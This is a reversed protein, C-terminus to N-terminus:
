SDLNYSAIIRDIASRNTEIGISSKALFLIQLIGDTSNVFYSLSYSGELSDVNTSDVERLIGAENGISVDEQQIVSGVAVPNEEIYQAVTGSYETALLNMVFGSQDNQLGLVSDTNENSAVFLLNQNGSNTIETTYLDGPIRLSFGRDSILYENDLRKLSVRPSTAANISGNREAIDDTLAIDTNSGNSTNTDMGDNQALFYYAGGAIILVVVLIITWMTSKSGSPAMQPQNEM